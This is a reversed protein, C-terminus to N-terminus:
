FLMVVEQDGILLGSAMAFASRQYALLSHGCVDTRSRCKIVPFRLM